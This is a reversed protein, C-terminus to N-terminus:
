SVIQKARNIVTEATCDGRQVQSPALIPQRQRDFVPVAEASRIGLLSYMTAALVDYPLYFSWCQILPNM